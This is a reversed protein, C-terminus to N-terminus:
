EVRILPGYAYKVDKNSDESWRVRVQTMGTKPDKCVHRLNTSDPHGNLDVDVIHRSDDGFTWASVETWRKGTWCQVSFFVNPVHFFDKGVIVFTEDLGVSKLNNGNNDEYWWVEHSGVGGKGAQPTPPKPGAIALPIFFVVFVIGAGVLTLAAGMARLPHKLVRDM